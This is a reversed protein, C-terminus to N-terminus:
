GAKRVIKIIKPMIVRLSKAPYKAQNLTGAMYLDDEASYFLWSGTSGLHGALPPINFIWNLVRPMEFYMMGYSYKLPPFLFRADETLSVNEPLPFLTGDFFAKLFKTLDDLTSIIGGDAWSSCMGKIETVDRGKNYTHVTDPLNKKEPKSLNYLWTSDLSLPEFIKEKFVQHLKKGTLKEIIFGLLQFNVDSYSVRKGPPFKAKLNERTFVLTDEPTWKVDPNEYIQEMFSKGEAPKDEYYDAIGSTHSILHRVTVVPLYDTGKYSHLGEILSMPLIDIIKSELTLKGRSILDFIAASTFLKTISATYFPSNPAVDVASGTYTEGGTGQWKFSGDGKEVSMLISHIHQDDLLKDKLNNLERHAYGTDM